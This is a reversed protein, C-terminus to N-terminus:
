FKLMIRATLAFRVNQAMNQRNSQRHRLRGRRFAYCNGGQIACTQDGAFWLPLGEPDPFLLRASGWGALDGAMDRIVANTYL